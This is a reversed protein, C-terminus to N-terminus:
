NALDTPKNLEMPIKIRVEDGVVKTAIWDGSGVGYDNRNLTTNIVLGLITTGKQWPHEMMGTISFPLEVEKTVDKITLKGLAIFDSSSKKVVKSSM